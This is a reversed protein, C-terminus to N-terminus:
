FSWGLNVNLLLLLDNEKTTASQGLSNEAKAHVIMVTFGGQLFLTFGMDAIGNKVMDDTLLEM